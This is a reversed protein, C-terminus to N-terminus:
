EGSPVPEKRGEACPDGLDPKILPMEELTRVRMAESIPTSGMFSEFEDASMIGDPRKESM